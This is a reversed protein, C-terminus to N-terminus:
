DEKNETFIFSESARVKLALELDKQSNNTEVQDEIEPDQGKEEPVPKTFGVSKRTGARPQAPVAVFSLEYADKAGSLLMKCRKKAGKATGDEITYEVGPWHRCYKQMNDTGCINCIMKEPTCSTSVEKKIGGVIEAILDKNSDTRIMYAKAILETHLEGLETTKNPNQILETDYIRAVQNDARRSHDKLMTKGPYLKKLAQLAKLDFPMYNRDDQENDAIMQKFIFVDDASVPSLTYKNIKKLDEETVELPQVSAVKCVVGPIAEPDNFDLNFKEENPM